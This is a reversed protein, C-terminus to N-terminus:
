LQHRRSGFRSSLPTLNSGRPDSYVPSSRTPTLHRGMQQQQHQLERPYEQRYHRHTPQSSHLAYHHTNDLEQPTAASHHSYMHRVPSPGNNSFAAYEKHQPSLYTTPNAGIPSPSSITTAVTNSPLTSNTTATPQRVPSSSGVRDIISVYPAPAVGKSSSGGGANTNHRTALHRLLQTRVAHDVVGGQHPTTTPAFRDPTEFPASWPKSYNPPSPQASQQAHRTEVDAPHEDGDCEEEEEEVVAQRRSDDSEDARHVVDDESGLILRQSYIIENKTELITELTKIESRAESLQKILDSNAIRLDATESSDKLLRDLREPRISLYSSPADGNAENNEVLVVDNSEDVSHKKSTEDEHAAGRKKLGSAYCGYRRVSSPPPPTSQAVVVAGGAGSSNEATTSGFHNILGPVTDENSGNNHTQHLATTSLLLGSDGSSSADEGNSGVVVGGVKGSRNGSHSTTTPPPPAGSEFEPPLQTDLRQPPPHLASATTDEVFGTNSFQQRRSAAFTVMQQLLLRETPSM